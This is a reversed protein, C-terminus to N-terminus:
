RHSPTVTVQTSVPQPHPTFRQTVLWAVTVIVALAVVVAVFGALFAVLPAPEAESGTGDPEAM